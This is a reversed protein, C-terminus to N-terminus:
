TCHLMKWPQIKHKERTVISHKYASTPRCVFFVQNPCPFYWPEPWCSWPHLHGWKGHFASTKSWLVIAQLHGCPDKCIDLATVPVATPWKSTRTPRYQHWWWRRWRRIHFTALTALMVPSTEAYWSLWRQVWGASFITERWWHLSDSM